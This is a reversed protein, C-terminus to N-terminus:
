LNETSIDAGQKRNGRHCFEEAQIGERLGAICWAMHQCGGKHKGMSLVLARTQSRERAGLSSSAKQSPESAMQWLKSEGSDPAPVSLQGWPHTHTHTHAQTTPLHYTLSAQCVPTDTPWSPYVSHGLCGLLSMPLIRQRTKWM